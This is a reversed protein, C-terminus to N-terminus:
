VNRGGPAAVVAAPSARTHHWALGPELRGLTPKLCPVWANPRDQHVMKREDASGCPDKPMRFERLPATGGSHGVPMDPEVGRRDDVTM